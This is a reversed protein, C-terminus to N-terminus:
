SGVKKGLPHYKENELLGTIYADAKERDFHDLQCIKQWLENCEKDEADEPTPSKKHSIFFYEETVNFFKALKQLNTEQPKAGKKWKTISGVSIGLTKVVQLPKMGKQECLFYFNEWFM